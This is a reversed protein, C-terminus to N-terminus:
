DHIEKGCHPCVRKNKKERLHEAIGASLIGAPLAYMGVGIVSIIGAMVKGGITIPVMDGYGVTTLTVIGWWMTAPISSFLQPQADHEVYYMMTSAIVLLFVIFMIVVLLQERRDKIVNFILNLASLYRAIKLMRLLRLLRVIRLFRLDIPLLHLYFPLISLLDILAGPTLAYRLRGEFRKKFHPREACTWLRLVYEISFVVVSFIEFREFFHLYEQHYYPVTELLIAVINASILLILFYEIAYAVRYGSVIPELLLYVKKRLTMRTFTSKALLALNKM